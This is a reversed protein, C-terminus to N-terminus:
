RGLLADPGDDPTAQEAGRTLPFGDAGAVRGIRGDSRPMLHHLRGSGGVAPATSEHRRFKARYMASDAASLLRGATAHRAPVVAAGISATARLRLNAFRLPRALAAEVAARRAEVFEATPAAILLAFEDGHLRVAREGPLAAARLRDATAVLVQDGIQHGYSDNIDKFDDLDLLLLGVNGRGRRVRRLAAALGERSALGTLSDARLRRLLLLAPVTGVAWGGAAALVFLLVTSTVTV